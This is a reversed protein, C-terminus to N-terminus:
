LPACKDFNEINAPGDKRKEFDVCVHSQSNEAWFM